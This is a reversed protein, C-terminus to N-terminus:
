VIRRCDSRLSAKPTRADLVGGKSSQLPLTQQMQKVNVAFSTAWPACEPFNDEMMQELRFFCYPHSRSRFGLSRQCKQPLENSLNWARQYPSKCFIPHIYVCFKYLWIFGYIEVSDLSVTRCDDWCFFFVSRRLTACPGFWAVLFIQAFMWRRRLWYWETPSLFMSFRHRFLGYGYWDDTLFGWEFGLLDLPLHSWSSSKKHKGSGATLLPDLLIMPIQSCFVAFSRLFQSEDEWCGPVSSRRFDAQWPNWTSSLQKGIQCEVLLKVPWRYLLNLFRFRCLQWKLDVKIWPANVFFRVCNAM